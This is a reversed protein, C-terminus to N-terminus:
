LIMPKSKEPLLKLMFLSYCATEQDIGGHTLRYHIARVMHTQSVRKKKCARLNKKLLAFRCNYIFTRLLM